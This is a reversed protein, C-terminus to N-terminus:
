SVAGVVPQNAEGGETVEQLQQQKVLEPEVYPKKEAAKEKKDVTDGKSHGWGLHSNGQIGWGLHSYLPIIASLTHHPRTLRLPRRSPQGCDRSPLRRLELRLLSYGCAANGRRFVHACAFLGTIEHCSLGIANEPLECTAAPVM